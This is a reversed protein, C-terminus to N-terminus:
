NKVEDYLLTYKFASDEMLSVFYMGPPCTLGLIIITKSLFSEIKKKFCVYFLDHVMNYLDSLMSFLCLSFLYCILFLHYTLVTVKQMKSLTELEHLRSAYWDSFM